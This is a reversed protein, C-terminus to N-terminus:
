SASDIRAVAYPRLTISNSSSSDGPQDFGAPHTCLSVFTTEDIVSTRGPQMGEILVAQPEATLNALWLQTGTGTNL